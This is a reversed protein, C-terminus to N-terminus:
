FKVAFGKPLKNRCESGIQFFGQSETGFDLDNDTPLLYGSTTQHIWWIGKKSVKRGCLWCFDDGQRDKADETRDVDAIKIVQVTHGNIVKTETM